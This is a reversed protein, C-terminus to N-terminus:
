NFQVVFLIFDLREILLFLNIRTFTCCVAAQLLNLVLIDPCAQVPFKFLESVQQYHGLDSLKLLFEVLEPSRRRFLDCLSLDVLCVTGNAQSSQYFMFRGPPLILMKTM